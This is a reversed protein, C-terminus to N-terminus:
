LLIGGDACEIMYEKSCCDFSVLTLTMVIPISALQVMCDTYLLMADM